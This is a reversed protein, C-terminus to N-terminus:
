LRLVGFRLHPPPDVAHTLAARRMGILVPVGTTVIPAWGGLRAPLGTAAHGGPSDITRADQVCHQECLKAPEATLEHCPGVATTSTAEVGVAGGDAPAVDCAYAAVALQLFLLASLCTWAVLRRHFHRLM